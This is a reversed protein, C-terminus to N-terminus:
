AAQFLSPTVKVDVSRCDLSPYELGNGALAELGLLVLHLSDDSDIVQILRVFEEATGDNRRIEGVLDFAADQIGAEYFSAVLQRRVDELAAPNQRVFDIVEQPVTIRTIVVCETEQGWKKRRAAAAAILRVVRDLSFAFGILAFPWVVYGIM